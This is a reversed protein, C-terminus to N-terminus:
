KKLETELLNNCHTDYKKSTGRPSYTKERWAISIHNSRGAAVSLASKNMKEEKNYCFYYQSVLAM